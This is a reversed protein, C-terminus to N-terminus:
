VATNGSINPVGSPPGHQQGLAKISESDGSQFPLETWDSSIGDDGSCLPSQTPLQGLYGMWSVTCRTHWHITEQRKENPRTCGGKADSVATPDTVDRIEGDNGSKTTTKGVNKPNGSAVMRAKWDPYYEEIETAKPTPLLGPKGHGNSKHKKIGKDSRVEASREGDNRESTTEGDISTNSADGSEGARGIDSRLRERKDQKGEGEGQTYKDEGFRGSEHGDSRAHAIFWVRDRRHPANVSCAPLVYPFVEYGAAELDTQWKTSYWEKQGTLLALFTKALIYRPQIEGIARLMEPGSIDLMKQAREYDQRVTLSAHSGEPSSMLSDETTFLNQQKSTAM